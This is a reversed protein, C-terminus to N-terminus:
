LSLAESWLTRRLAKVDRHLYTTLSPIIIHFGYSTSIVPISMWLYSPEFRTWLSSDIHMSSCFLLAMFSLGLGIMLLRNFYDVPRMGLYIFGGFIALLPFSQAYQPIRVGFITSLGDAVMPGSGALYAATLSYLLVLYLLWVIAECKKGLTQRTITILNVPQRFWLNAELMLFATGLQLAWYLVLLLMSPYLGASGTVVPIALMGAGLTTGSVLLVAGLQKSLGPSGTQNLDLAASKM